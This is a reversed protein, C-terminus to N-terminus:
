DGCRWALNHISDVIGKDRVFIGQGTFLLGLSVCSKVNFVCLRCALCDDLGEGGCQTPITMFVPSKMGFVFSSVTNSKKIKRRHHSFDWRHYAHFLLEKKYHM